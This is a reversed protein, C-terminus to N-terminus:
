VIKRGHEFRAPCFEDANEWISSDRHTLYISYFMRAGSPVTSGEFELDEAVMRNGIHIPPYLRLAEKIVQDLLPPREDHELETM